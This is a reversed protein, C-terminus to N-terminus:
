DGSVSMTRIFSGAANLFSSDQSRRQSELAEREWEREAEEMAYRDEEETDMPTQLLILAIM